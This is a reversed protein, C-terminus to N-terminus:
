FRWALGLGAGLYRLDTAFVNENINVERNLQQYKLFPRLQFREFLDIEVGAAAQWGLGHESDAILDGQSNEIEIHNYIGGLRVFPQLVSERIPYMLKLGFLYGTEEFDAKTGAFSEDSAFHNWSWGGYVGLQDLLHYDILAELGLGVNLKTDNLEQTPFSGLGRLEVSFRRQGFTILPLIVLGVWTIYKCIKM